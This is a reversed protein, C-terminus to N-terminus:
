LKADDGRVPLTKALLLPPAEVADAQLRPAVFVLAFVDEVDFWLAAHGLANAALDHLIQADVHEVRVSRAGGLDLQCVVSLEGCLVLSSDVIKADRRRPSFDEDAFLRPVREVGVLAAGHAVIAM